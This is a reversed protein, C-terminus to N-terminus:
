RERICAYYKQRVRYLIELCYIVTKSLKCIYDERLIQLLNTRPGELYVRTWPHELGKNFYCLIQM